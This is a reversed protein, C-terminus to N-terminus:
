KTKKAPKKALKGAETIKGDGDVWGYKVCAEVAERDLKPAKDPLNGSPTRVVVKKKGSVDEVKVTRGGALADLVLKQKPSAAKTTTAVAM